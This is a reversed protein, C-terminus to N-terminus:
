VFENDDDIEDFSRALRSGSKLLPHDLTVIHDGFAEEILAMFDDCWVPELKIHKERKILHRQNVNDSERSIWHVRGEALMRLASEMWTSNEPNYTIPMVIRQGNARVVEYLNARFVAYGEDILAQKADPDVLHWHKGVWSVLVNQVRGSPDPNIRFAKSPLCVAVHTNGSGSEAVQFRSINFQSRM